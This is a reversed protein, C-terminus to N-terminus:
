AEQPTAAEPALVPTTADDGGVKPVSLRRRFVKYSWAQYFIVVPMGIVAALTMVKLTYSPSATNNVTLNYATNTSSIMVRPFLENFLSGVTGGIGVCAAIFAWGDARERAAWAAVIVALLALAQLPEPVFGTSLGVHTWTM